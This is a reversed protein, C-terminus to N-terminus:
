RSSIWTLVTYTPKEALGLHHPDDKSALPLTALLPKKKVTVALRSFASLDNVPLTEERPLCLVLYQAHILSPDATYVLWDSGFKLGSTLYYGRSRFDLYVALRIRQVMNPGSPGWLAAYPDEVPVGGLASGSAPVLVRTSSYPLNAVARKKEKAEKKKGQVWVKLDEMDSPPPPLASPKNKIRDEEVTM